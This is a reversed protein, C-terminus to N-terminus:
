RHRTMRVRSATGRSHLHDIGEPTRTMRTPGTPSSSTTGSTSASTAPGFLREFEEAADTRIRVIIANAQAM